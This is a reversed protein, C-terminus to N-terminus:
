QANKHGPLQQEVTPHVDGQDVGLQHGHRDVDVEEHSEKSALIEGGGLLAQHPQCLLSLSLLPSIYTM